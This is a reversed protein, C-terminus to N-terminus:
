RVGPTWLKHGGDAGLQVTVSSLVSLSGTSWSHPLPQSQGCQQQPGPKEGQSERPFMSDLNLRGIVSFCPASRISRLVDPSHRDRLRDRAQQNGGSAAQHYLSLATQLCPSVGFGTEYCQALCLLAASDGSEAAMRFYCVCKEQDCDSRQSLVVGLFVQAARSDPAAATQLFSLAAAADTESSQQGRSSLLLKACRYQALRHGSVAALRYYHVAKSLDAQVGRGREYCVGLNFQAKSYDQEASALFCSFATEFDGARVSELGIINLIVPVSADTVRRLNQAAADLSLRQPEEQQDDSSHAAQLDSTVGGAGNGHSREGSGSQGRECLCKTVDGSLAKPSSLVDLLVRYSCKRVLGAERIQSAGAKQDSSLRSHIRRCLQM